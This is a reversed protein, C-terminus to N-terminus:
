LSTKLIIPDEPNTSICIAHCKLPCPTLLFFKSHFQTKYAPLANNKNLQEEMDDFNVSNESSSVTWHIAEM